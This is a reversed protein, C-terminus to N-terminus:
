QRVTHLRLPQKIYISLELHITNVLIFDRSKGILCTMVLFISKLLRIFSKVYRSKSKRRKNVMWAVVSGYIRM